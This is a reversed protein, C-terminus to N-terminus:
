FIAGTAQGGFSPLPDRVRFAAGFHCPLGRGVMPCQQQRDLCDVIRCSGSRGVLGGSLHSAPRRQGTRTDLRWSPRRRPPISERATVGPADLLASLFVLVLLQWYQLGVTHYLAPILAVTFGSAVDSVISM